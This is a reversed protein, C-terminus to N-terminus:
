GEDLPTYILEGLLSDRPGATFGATQTNIMRGQVFTDPPLEVDFGLIADRVECGEPVRSGPLLLSNEVVAGAGIEVGDEVSCGQIKASEDVQARPSVQSRRGLLRRARRGRTWDLVGELYRRPTGLDHWDRSTSIARIEQGDRILPEYLDRVFDSPGAAVDEVLRPSFIHLGAFVCRRRSDGYTTGKRFSVVRDQEDLGIGGGYRQPDAKESVLLTAAAEHKQHARILQKVPWRCLSDGNAVVMLDAAEFVYRLPVVAGLTGQLESEESYVLPLEGLHDGLHDRIQGGLHHLNIAAAECGADALYSLTHALIPEGAVPLLPKPKQHTLPRLRTGEGAALVLARVRPTTM